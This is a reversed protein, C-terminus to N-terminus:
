KRIYEIEKCTIHWYKEWESKIDMHRLTICTKDYRIATKM